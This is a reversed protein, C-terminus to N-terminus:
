AAIRLDASGNDRVAYTATDALQIELIVPMTNGAVPLAANGNSWRWMASGLRETTHWGDNLAPHDATFVEVNAGAKVAISRISVGLTRPDGKYAALASPATARSVLRAADAGAPLVFTYTRNAVQVAGIRRGNLEIHLDADTTTEVVPRSYGLSEAREVLTAWTPRVANPAVALPACAKEEWIRSADDVHYATNGVATVPANRFFSRNGTDLYSEAALGNALVIAHRDLEIHYYTVDARATERTITMDNVLLKAPILSGDVFIAHPPSVILDANPVNEAFAGKAIRVPAVQDRDKHSVLDMQRIGIWKVPLVTSTDGDVVVVNDGQRLDEIAVEGNETAILTGAAYCVANTLFVTDTATDWNAFTNSDLDNIQLSIFAGGADEITLVDTTHDFNAKVVDHGSFDIVTTKTGAGDGRQMNTVTAGDTTIKNKTGFNLTGTGGAAFTFTLGDIDDDNSLNITGKDSISITGTGSMDGTVIGSGSIKGNNTITNAILSGTTTTTSLTIVATANLSVNNTVTLSRSNLNFTQNTGAITLADITSTALNYNVTTASGNQIFAADAIGPVVAGSWNGPTNWSAPITQTWTINAM